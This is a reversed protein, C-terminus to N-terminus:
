FFRPALPFSRQPEWGTADDHLYLAFEAVEFECAFDCLAEDAHDLSADDLHHAVTVHPHFPFAPRPADVAQRLQGALVGTAVYGAGLRVYVVPSTPRFTGTGQLRVRFSPITGATKDLRACVEDLDDVDIELPPLLTVHSPVTRALSDGFAARMERLRSGHPEPVAIAVGMTLSQADLRGPGPMEAPNM